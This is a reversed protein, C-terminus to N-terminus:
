ERNQKSFQYYLEDLDGQKDYIIQEGNKLGELYHSRSRLPGEIYYELSQGQRKEEHDIFYEERVGAGHHYTVKKELGLGEISSIKKKENTTEVKVEPAKNEEESCSNCLLCLLLSIAIKKM